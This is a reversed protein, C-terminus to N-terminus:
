EWDSRSRNSPMSTDTQSNRTSTSPDEVTFTYDTRLYEGDVFAGRHHDMERTM